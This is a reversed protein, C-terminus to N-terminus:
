KFTRYWRLILNNKTFEVFSLRARKNSTSTSCELVEQTQYLVFTYSNESEEDKKKKKKARNAADM